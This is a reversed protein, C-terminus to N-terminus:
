AEELTAFMLRCADGRSIPSDARAPDAGHSVKGGLMKIFEGTSIRRNGDSENVAQATKVPDTGQGTWLSALAAAWVKATGEELSEQAKADYGPFFGKTAFYSVAPIWPEDGSIDVDNFFSIMVKGEALRRVLIDPELEAPAVGHSKALSIAWGAAEGINMWTPELRITSWGVHSSSVCLPVLLNDLNKPLLARYPIQGPFTEQHLMIKGEHLTNPLKEFTCAHIDIYWETVAISDPHVPARRIEDKYTADHETFIYRGDLRRSERVYMEYPRNGNEEFEDKPIGWQRDNIRREEPISEDNRTFYLSGLLANWHDDM